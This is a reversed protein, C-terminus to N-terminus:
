NDGWLYSKSLVILKSPNLKNEAKIGKLSGKKNEFLTGFYDLFKIEYWLLVGCYHYNEELGFWFAAQTGSFM